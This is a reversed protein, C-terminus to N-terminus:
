YMDNMSLHGSDLNFVKLLLECAHSAVVTCFPCNGRTNTLKIVFRHFGPASRLYSQMTRM